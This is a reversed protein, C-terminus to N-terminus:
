GHLIVQVTTADLTDRLNRMTRNAERRQWARFRRDALKEEECAALFSENHYGWPYQDISGYDTM